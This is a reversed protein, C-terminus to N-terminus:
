QNFDLFYVDTDNRPISPIYFGNSQPIVEQLDFMKCSNPLGSFILTFAYEKNPSISTWDPFLSIKEFHVLESIHPSHHDFLFTTPWIRISIPYDNSKCIGHVVVQGFEFTLEKLQKKLEDSIFVVPNEIFSPM